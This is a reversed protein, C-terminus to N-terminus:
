EIVRNVIIHWTSDYTGRRPFSPDLPVYTASLKPFRQPSCPIGATTMLYGLRKMVAQRRTRRGYELLRKENLPSRLCAVIEDFPVYQPFLLGDVTAREKEAIVAANGGIYIKATGYILSPLVKIFRIQFSGVEINLPLTGSHVPNIVDIIRPSQTTTGYYEFAALLSVYSPHYLSSAIALPPSSPLTYRGRQLRVLVRKEVLRTLKVTASGISMGLLAAIQQTTLVASQRGQVRKVVTLTDMM